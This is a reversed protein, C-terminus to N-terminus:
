FPSIAIDSSTSQSIIALTQNTPSSLEPYKLVKKNQFVTRKKLFILVLKLIITYSLLHFLDRVNQKGSGQVIGESNAVRSTRKIEIIGIHIETVINEYSNRKTEQCIPKKM